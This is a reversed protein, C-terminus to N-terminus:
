LGEPTSMQKLRASLGERVICSSIKPRLAPGVAGGPDVNAEGAGVVERPITTDDTKTTSQPLTHLGPGVIGLSRKGAGRYLSARVTVPRRPPGGELEHSDLADTLWTM